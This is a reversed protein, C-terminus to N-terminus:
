VIVKISEVVVNREARIAALAAAIGTEVKNLNALMPGVNDLVYKKADGVDHPISLTATALKAEGNSVGDFCVGHENIKSSGIGVKFLTKQTEPDTLALASPRYKQVMELDAKSITSEIVYSNGAITVNAM